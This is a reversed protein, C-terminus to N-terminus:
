RQHKMMTWPCSEKKRNTCIVSSTSNSAVIYHYRRARCRRICCHGFYENSPLYYLYQLACNEEEEKASCDRYHSGPHHCITLCICLCICIVFICNCINPHATRKQASCDRYHSLPRHCITLCLRASIAQWRGIVSGYQCCCPCSLFFCGLFHSHQGPWERVTM